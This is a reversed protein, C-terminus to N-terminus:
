NRRQGVVGWIAIPTFMATPPAITNANSITKVWVARCVKAKKM